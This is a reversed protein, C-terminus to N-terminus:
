AALRDPETAVEARLQPLPTITASPQAGETVPRKAVPFTLRTTLVLVGLGLYTAVAAVPNFFLGFALAARILNSNIRLDEGLGECIGLLTDHRTFLSASQM